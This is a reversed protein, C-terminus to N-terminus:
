RLEDGRLFVSIRESADLYHARNMEGRAKSSLKRTEEELKRLQAAVTSSAGSFRPMSSGTPCSHCQM